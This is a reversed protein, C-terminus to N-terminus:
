FRVMTGFQFLTMDNYDVDRSDASYNTLGLYVETGLPDVNQSIGLGWMDVSEGKVRFDDYNGYGLAFGTRGLTWIDAVYGVKGFYTAPSNARNDFDQTAASLTFSL